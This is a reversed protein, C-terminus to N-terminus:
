PLAGASRPEEFRSFVMARDEVRRHCSVCQQREEEDIIRRGEGDFREFVWGGSTAFRGSDRVMVDISLRRTAEIGLKGEEVGFRDFILVAGDAFTGSRYGEIAAKNAYIHHMGDFRLRPNGPPPHGIASKVHSWHRFGEPFPVAPGTSSGLGVSGATAGFLALVMTLRAM